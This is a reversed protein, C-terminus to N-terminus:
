KKKGGGKKGKGKKKGVPFRKRAARECGARKGKSKKKCVKMAKALKQKNTLAKPCGTV